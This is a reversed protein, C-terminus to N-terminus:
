TIRSGCKRCNRDSKDNVTGCKFCRIKTSSDFEDTATIKHRTTPVHYTGSMRAGVGDLSVKSGPKLRGTEGDSESLVVPKRCNPCIMTGPELTRNCKPCRM